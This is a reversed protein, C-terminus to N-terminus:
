FNLNIFVFLAKTSPGRIDKLFLEHLLDTFCIHIKCNYM